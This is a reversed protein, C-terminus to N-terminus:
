GRYVISTLGLYDVTVQQEGSGDLPIAAFAPLAGEELEFQRRRRRATHRYRLRPDQRSNWLVVLPTSGTTDVLDCGAGLVVELLARAQPPRLTLDYAALREPHAGLEELQRDIAMKTYSELRFARLMRRLTEPKRDRGALLSGAAAHLTVVAMDAPALEIGSLRLTETQPDYDAACTRPRGDIELAVEAPNALGRFVLTYRRRPPVLYGDGQLPGISVELDSERWTQVIPTLAHHGATYAITEGDDEYLAFRNGAGPFLHVVLEAPNDVGGWGARPGLPVIAGARAYLPIDDLGGYRAHWSGGAYREGSFFDFWDGDPLWVVTRSLRTDPDAPLVHPAAILESGFTYQNPCAYAEDREPYDHYMPSILPRGDHHDRWAMSYLYPILAHRLQMAERAPGAVEAGHGWPRREHYPNKTSHLRLIPSLAGFQLWRLYLEPDEIGSMHGGIDHSWWGYAVNAATATMYPQFALSRWSVISDGSFGIPYRHSGLGGWRSFIFPRRRGDRGLDLAHLHNLWWLPDLGPLHCDGGQQWDIWWFDVGQAELPHHLLRLYAQAYVPNAIDFPVPKRSAPDIGMACAMAPYAAEHPHVGEAPHLNLATHLGREHLGAIFGQPDPFLDRNWTYGTWGSGANGTDTIHWDMDVICVSLPVSRARFEDMLALLEEQSYAWYRSWWNGLAWRPILPVPGAVRRYDRLCSVYDHGYGFFYLDQACPEPRPELWGQANFLLSASDDVVAWGARSVLGPELPVPGDAQDVTRATGLLNQRDIDGFRWTTGAQLLEVSLTDPAFGAEQPRYRLRLHGTVIELCEGARRAEFAPLPQRRQWFVQSPRDIFTGSPSHEMRILRSTLVTFRAGPANVVAAPDAVPQCALRFHKAIPEM